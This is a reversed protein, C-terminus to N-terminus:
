ERSVSADRLPLCYHSLPRLPPGESYQETHDRLTVGEERTHKWFIVLVASHALLDTM